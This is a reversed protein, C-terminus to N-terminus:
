HAQHGQQGQRGKEKAHTDNLWEEKEFLHAFQLAALEEDLQENLADVAVYHFGIFAIGAQQMAKEVSQVYELTDDIFFVRQPRWKIRNLFAQLIEGKPLDAAFLIGKKFIPLRHRDKLEGFVIHNYSPFVDSFDFGLWDLEQYRWDELSPIVGLRGTILGTCAIVKLSREQLRRILIPLESDVLGMTRSILLKSELFSLKEEPILASLKTFQDEFYQEGCPRLVRDDAVQLTEDVDFVILDNENANELFTKIFSLNQAQHITAELGDLVLVSFILLLLM